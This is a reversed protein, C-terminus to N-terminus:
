KGVMVTVKKPTPILSQQSFTVINDSFPFLNFLGSTGYAARCFSVFFSEIVLYTQSISYGGRLDECHM